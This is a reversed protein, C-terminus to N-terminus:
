FKIPKRGDKQVQIGGLGIDIEINFSKALEVLNAREEEFKKISKERLRVPLKRFVAPDKEEDSIESPFRLESEVGSRRTLVPIKNQAQFRSLEAIQDRSVKQQNEIM